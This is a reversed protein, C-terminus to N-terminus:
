PRLYKSPRRSSRQSIRLFTVRAKCPPPARPARVQAHQIGEERIAPEIHGAVVSCTRDRHIRRHTGIAKTFASRIAAPAPRAADLLRQRRACLRDSSEKGGFRASSHIGRQDPPPRGGDAVDRLFTKAM